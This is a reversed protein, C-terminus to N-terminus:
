SAGSIHTLDEGAWTIVPLWLLVEFSLGHLPLRDCNLQRHQSGGPHSYGCVDADNVTHVDLMRERFTNRSTRCKHQPGKM